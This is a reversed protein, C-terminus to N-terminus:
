SASEKQSRFIFKLLAYQYVSSFWEPDFDRIQRIHFAAEAPELFLSEISEQGAAVAALFIPLYVVANRFDNEPEFGLLDVSQIQAWEKLQNGFDDPWSTDDGHNRLLGQYWSKDNTRDNIMGHMVSDPLKIEPPFSDEEIWKLANAGLMPMCTLIKKNFDPKLHENVLEDPLGQNLMWGWYCESVKKIVNLPVAEWILPFDRELYRTYEPDFSFKYLSM